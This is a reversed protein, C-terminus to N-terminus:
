VELIVELEVPAGLPLEYVGVALRAHKGIEDFIEFALDSAGNMVDAQETFKESSAVYGTMRVIRKIQDLSQLAKNAHALANLLCIKACKKADELSVEEPVKGHHLLEGNVTPIQGSIFLLGGSRVYPVYSGVPSPANPLDIGIKKLKEDIRM